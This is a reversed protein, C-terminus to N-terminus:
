DVMVLIVFVKGKETLAVVKNIPIDQKCFVKSRHKGVIAYLGIDMISKQTIYDITYKDELPTPKFTRFDNFTYFSTLFCAVKDGEKEVRECLAIMTRVPCGEEVVLTEINLVEQLDDMAESVTSPYRVEVKETTETNM